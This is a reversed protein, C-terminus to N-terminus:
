PNPPGSQCDSLAQRCQELETKMKFYEDQIQVVCKGKVVDDPRCQSLPLDPWGANGLKGLLNGKDYCEDPLSIGYYKYTVGACAVVSMLGLVYGAIFNSRM